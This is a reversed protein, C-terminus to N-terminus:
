TEHSLEEPYNIILILSSISMLVRKATISIGCMDLQSYLFMYNQHSLKLIPHIM